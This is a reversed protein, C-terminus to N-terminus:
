LTLDNMAFFIKRQNNLCTRVYNTAVLSNHKKQTTDFMARGLEKKLRILDVRCPNKENPIQKEFEAIRHALAKDLIARDEDYKKFAALANKKFQQEESNIALFLNWIKDDFDRYTKKGWPRTRYKALVKLIETDYNEPRATSSTPTIFIKQVEVNECQPGPNHLIELKMLNTQSFSGILQVQQNAFFVRCMPLLNEMKQLREAVQLKKYIERELELRIQNYVTFDTYIDIKTAIEYMSLNLAVLVTQFNKEFEANKEIQFPRKHFTSNIEKLLATYMADTKALSELDSIEGKGDVEKLLSALVVIGIIRACIKM